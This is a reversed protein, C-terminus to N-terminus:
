AYIIPLKINFHDNDAEILITQSFLLNYRNILNSLGVGTSHQVSNKLKISNTVIVHSDTNYIQIRLPYSRSTVNHKIANEILLQLTLPPMAMVMLGEDVTIDIEIASAMRTKIIYLYSKIFSMEESLTVVNMKNHVLMYRYVNALESIFDKTKKEQTISSLTNLTNFLFHPSMQEKLNSLNAELQAQKLREIELNDQQREELLKLYFVVFFYISSILLCRLILLIWDSSKSDFWDHKDNVLSFIYDFAADLPLIIFSIFFVSLISYVYRSEKSVFNTKRNSFYFHIFYSVLSVTFTYSVIKFVNLMQINDNGSLRIPLAAIAIGLCIIVGLFYYQKTM